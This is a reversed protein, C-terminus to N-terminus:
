FRKGIGLSVLTPDVKFTGLKSGGAAIDTRIQVKKIDANLLWGGGLSFDLGAGVAAGFSDKDTTVGSPLDVDSFRTYNVGAGIYPRVAGLGTFHYQLSLTPPLHKLSGIKTGGASVDHKQPYTLVLEAALNPTFFYTIDVEPFTKSDISLDLGTDDKNAPDLYLVRARVIWSGSDATQAQATPLVVAVALLALLRKKKM